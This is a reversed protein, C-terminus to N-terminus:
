RQRKFLVGLKGDKIGIFCTGKYGYYLAARLGDFKTDYPKLSPVFFGGGVPTKSWPYHIKPKWSPSSRKM